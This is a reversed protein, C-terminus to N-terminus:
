TQEPLGIHGFRLPEDKEVASVLTQGLLDSLRDPPLGSGPKKLALNERSLVEGAALPRRAVISNTFTARMSAAHEGLRKAEDGLAAELRRVGRVLEAMEGPLLSVHHDPGQATRDLTFHVEIMAAGLAASAIVEPLNRSHDSLGVPCGYRRRLAPIMRLDMAELPTPYESVCHLLLVKDSAAALLGMMADIEGQPSMGSSVVLPLGYSATKELLWPNGVEGSPIKFGDPGLSAVAQAAEECFVSCLYLMGAEATQRRLSAHVEHPFEQVRRIFDYRSENYYYSRTTRDFLECDALRYQFKVADCGAQAAASVLAAAEQPSGNHNPGIEAVVVVQGAGVPRAGLNFVPLFGYGPADPLSHM